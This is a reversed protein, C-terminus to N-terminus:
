SVEKVYSVDSPAYGKRRYLAALGSAQGTLHHTIYQRTCGKARCWKDFKGLLLMGVPLGRIEPLVYWFAERAIAEGSYLDAEAVAGLAGGIIDGTTFAWIQGAGMEYIKQWHFVWADLDFAPLLGEDFASQGLLGVTPFEGPTVQHIM